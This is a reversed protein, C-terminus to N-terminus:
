SKFTELDFYDRWVKIKGQSLLFFGAIPLSITRGARRFYDVRENMVMDGAAIQHLIEVEIAEFRQPLGKLSAYIESIGNLPRLPVNHYVADESFYAILEDANMRKFVDTCLHRILEDNSKM